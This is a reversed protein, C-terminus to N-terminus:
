RTSPAELMARREPRLSNTIPSVMTPIPVDVGSITTLKMDANLPSDSIATPFTTPEFIKLVNTISPIVARIDGIAIVRVLRLFSMGSLIMTVTMIITSPNFAVIKPYPSLVRFLHSPSKISAINTHYIMDDTLPPFVSWFWGSSPIFVYEMASEENMITM